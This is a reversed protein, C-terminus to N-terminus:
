KKGAVPGAKPASKELEANVANTLTRKQFDLNTIEKCADDYSKKEPKMTNLANKCGTDLAKRFNPDSMKKIDESLERKSGRLLSMALEKNQDHKFAEQADRIDKYYASNVDMMEANSFFKTNVFEFKTIDTYLERKQEDTLKEDSKLRKVADSHRIALKSTEVYGKAFLLDDDTLPGLKEVGPKKEDKIEKAAKLLEPDKELWELLTATREANVAWDESVAESGNAEINYRKIAKVIARALLEKKGYNNAVLAEYTEKVAEKGKIGGAIAAFDRTNVNRNGIGKINTLDYYPGGKPIPTVKMDQEILKQDLDQNFPLRRSYQSAKSVYKDVSVYDEHKRNGLVGRKKNIKNCLAEFDARDMHLSLATMVADFRDKGFQSSRVKEKGDIYALGKKVFNDGATYIEEISAGSAAVDDYAKMYKLVDDFEESNNKHWWSDGSGTNRLITHLQSMAKPYATEYLVNSTAGQERADNMDSELKGAIERKYLSAKGSTEMNVAFAKVEDSLTKETAPLDAPFKHGIEYAARGAEDQKGALTQEHIVKVGRYVDNMKNLFAKRNEAQASEMNEKNRATKLTVGQSKLFANCDADTIYGKELLNAELNNVITLQKGVVTEKAAKVIAAYERDKESIKDWNKKAPDKADAKSMDSMIKQVEKGFQEELESKKKLLEGLRASMESVIPQGKEDKPVFYGKTIEEVSEKFEDDLMIQDDMFQFDLLFQLKETRNLRRYHTSLATNKPM